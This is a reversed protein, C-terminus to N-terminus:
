SYSLFWIPFKINCSSSSIKSGVLRAALRWGGELNQCQLVALFSNIGCYSRVWWVCNQHLNFFHYVFMINASIIIHGNDVVIFSFTSLKCNEFCILDYVLSPLYQVIVFLALQSAGFLIVLYLSKTFLWFWLVITEYGVYGHQHMWLLDMPFTWLIASIEFRM